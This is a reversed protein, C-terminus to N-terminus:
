PGARARRADGTVAAAAAREVRLAGDERTRRLGICLQDGMVACEECAVDGAGGAACRERKYLDVGPEIEEGLRLRLAQWLRSNRATYVRTGHISTGARPRPVLRGTRVAKVSSTQSSRRM